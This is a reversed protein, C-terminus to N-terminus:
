IAGRVLAFDVHGAGGFPLKKVAKARKSSSRGGGPMGGVEPLDFPVQKSGPPESALRKLLVPVEDM